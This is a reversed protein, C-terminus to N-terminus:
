LQEWALAIEAYLLKSQVECYWVIYGNWSLYAYQEVLKQGM